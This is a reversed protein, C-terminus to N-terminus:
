SFLFDLQTRKLFLGLYKKKGNTYFYTHNTKRWSAYETARCNLWIGGMQSCASYWMNWLSFTSTCSGSSKWLIPSGGHLQPKLNIIKGKLQSACRRTSEPTYSDETKDVHFHLKKWFMKTTTTEFSTDEYVCCHKLFHQLDYPFMLVLGFFTTTVIGPRCRISVLLLFCLTSCSCVVPRTRCTFVATQAWPNPCLHHQSM